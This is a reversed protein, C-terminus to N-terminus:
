ETYVKYWEVKAIRGFNISSIPFYEWFFPLHLHPRPLVVNSSFVAMCVFECLEVFLEDFCTAVVFAKKLSSHLCWLKLVWWM